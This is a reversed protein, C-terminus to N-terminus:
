VLPRNMKKRLRSLSEPQIGLYSAILHQKIKNELGPHEELFNMYRSEADLLLFERERKEKIMFAKELLYILLKDWKPDEKRLKEWTHFDIEVVESYELAEINIYSESQTIMASYSSIVSREHMFSKTFEKGESSIYYYRFSGKKVIGIKRPVQGARIFNTQPEFYTLKGYTILEAILEEIMLCSHQKQKLYTRHTDKNM